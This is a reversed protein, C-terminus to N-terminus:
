QWPIAGSERIHEQLYLRIQKYDELETPDLPTEEYEDNKINFLQIPEYPTNQLIKLDGFRAAYYAQGGYRYGERRMWFVPRDDTIQEKGLLTPSISMGDLGDPQDVGAVECFTPFLDMLMGLRNTKSGPKIKDKWYFFTPVRIGGEYMDQKGGRLEGNSQAY